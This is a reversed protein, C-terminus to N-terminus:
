RSRKLIKYVQNQHCGVEKAIEAATRGEASLRDVHAYDIQPLRGVRKRHQASALSSSRAANIAIKLRVLAAQMPEPLDWKESEAVAERATEILSIDRKM